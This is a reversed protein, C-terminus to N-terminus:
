VEKWSAGIECVTCFDVADDGAFGEVLAFALLATGSATGGDADGQGLRGITVCLRALATLHGCGGIGQRHVVGSCVRYSFFWLFYVPDRRWKGKPHHRTVEGREANRLRM